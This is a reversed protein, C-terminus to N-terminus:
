KHKGMHNQMIRQAEKDSHSVAYGCSCVVRLLEQKQGDYAIRGSRTIQHENM